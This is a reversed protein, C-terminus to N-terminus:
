EDDEAEDEYGNRLKIPMQLEDEAGWDEPPEGWNFGIYSERTIEIGLRRMEALVARVASSDGRHSLPDEEEDAAVGALEWLMEVVAARTAAPHARLVSAIVREYAEKNM